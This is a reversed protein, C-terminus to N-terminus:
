WDICIQIRKPFDNAEFFSIPIYLTHIQRNTKMADYRVTETHTDTYEMMVIISNNKRKPNKYVESETIIVEPILDPKSRITVGVCPPIEDPLRWKPIYLNSRERSYNDKFIWCHSNKTEKFYVFSETFIM